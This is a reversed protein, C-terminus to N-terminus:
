LNQIIFALNTKYVLPFPFVSSRDPGTIMPPASEPCTKMVILKIHNGLGTREMLTCKDGGWLPPLRYLPRELGGVPPSPSRSM